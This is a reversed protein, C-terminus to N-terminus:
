TGRIGSKKRRQKSQRAGRGSSITRKAYSFKMPERKILIGGAVRSFVARGQKLEATTVYLPSAMDNEGYSFYVM